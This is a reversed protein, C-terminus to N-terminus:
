TAVHICVFSCLPPLQWQIESFGDFYLKSVLVVAELPTQFVQQLIQYHGHVDSM